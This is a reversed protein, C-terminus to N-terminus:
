GEQSPRRMKRIFPRKLLERLLTHFRTGFATVKIEREKERYHKLEVELHEEPVFSLVKEAWEVVTVGKGYFYEEYGLDLIEGPGELRYLDFHYLPIPGPHEHILTFTPSTVGHPSEIGLGMAIGKVLCTKGSGLDGILCVVDGKQLLSGLAMGLNLTQRPNRSFLFLSLNERLAEKM